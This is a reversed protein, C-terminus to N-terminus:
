LSLIFYFTLLYSVLVLPFGFMFITYAISLLKYKRNLVMGQAYINEILSEHLTEDKSMMEKLAIKYNELPIATYSGFFLLDMKIPTEPPNQKGKVSPKTALLAFTITLLCVLVLFCTPLLLSPNDTFQQVMLSTMISIIIANVSVLLGAKQDAMESLRIHNTMSSRFMTEITRSPKKKKPKKTKDKKEEAEMNIAKLSHLSARLAM